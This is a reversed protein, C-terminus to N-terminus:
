VNPKSDHKGMETTAPEAPVARPLGDPLSHFAKSLLHSPLLKHHGSNPKFLFTPSVPWLVAEETLFLFMIVRAPQSLQLTM